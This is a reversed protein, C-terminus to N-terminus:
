GSLGRLHMERMHEEGSKAALLFYRALERVERPWALCRDERAAAQEGHKPFATKRGPAQKQDRQIVAISPGPHLGPLELSGFFGSAGTPLLLCTVRSTVGRLCARGHLLQSFGAQPDDTWPRARATSKKRRKGKKKKKGKERGPKNRQKADQNLADPGPVQPAPIPAAPPQLRALATGRDGAPALALGMSSSTGASGPM